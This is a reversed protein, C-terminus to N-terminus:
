LTITLGVLDSLQLHLELISYAEFLFNIACVTDFCISFVILLTFGFQKSQKREVNMFM